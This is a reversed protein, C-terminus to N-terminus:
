AGAGVLCQFVEDNGVTELAMGVIENPGAVGADDAAAVLNAGAVKCYDGLTIAAATAKIAFVGKRWVPIRTQGDNAVKEVASIGIFTQNDGSSAIATNPDSDLILITGKPIAPTDAVTVEFLRDELQQVLIAENAM